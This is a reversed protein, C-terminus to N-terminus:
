IKNEKCIELYESRSKKRMALMLKIKMGNIM